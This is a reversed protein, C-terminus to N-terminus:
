LFTKYRKLYSIMRELSDIRERLYGLITNCNRCLVGRIEGSQHCHGICAMKSSSKSSFEDQCIPCRNGQSSIIKNKEELTIGYRWKLQQSRLKDPCKERMRKLSRSSYIKIQEKHESRWKQLYEKVYKKNKARWERNYQVREERKRKAYKRVRAKVKERFEKDEQYRERYRSRKAEKKDEKNKEQKMEEGGKEKREKLKLKTIMM